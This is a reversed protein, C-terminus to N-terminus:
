FNIFTIVNIQGRNNGGPLFQNMYGLEFRFMKNLKYGIGGSLRNRDFLNTESNLFIENYASLYFPNETTENKGLPINLGLFYRFRLKFNEEM